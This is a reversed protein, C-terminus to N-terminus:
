QRSRVVPYGDEDILVNEPKLDRYVISLRHMFALGDAVGAAYFKANPEPIGDGNKSHLLSFLEGGQVLGLLMYVFRKDQFTAVLQIIFPHHLQSMINKEDIVARAQGDKVLEYKSQIKLAYAKKKEKKMSVLWVQGFTGAGLIAHRNLDSMGIDTLVKNPTEKVKGLFLTDIILRCESLSLVGCAGGELVKVTYKAKTATPDKPGNKGSEVDALLQDDGFYGGAGITRSGSSDTVEVKCDGRPFYLAADVMDGESFVIQDKAYEADKFRRTM